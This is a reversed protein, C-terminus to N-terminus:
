CEELIFTSSRKLSPLNGNQCRGRQLSRERWKMIKTVHTRFKGARFHYEGHNERVKRKADTEGNVHIQPLKTKLKRDFMTEEPSVGTSEHPTARYQLLYTYLDMKPDRGEIVSTHVM